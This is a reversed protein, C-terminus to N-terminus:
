VRLGSVIETPIAPEKPQYTAIIKLLHKRDGLTPIIERLDNDTLELFIVGDVRNEQLIEIASNSLQNTKKLYDSLEDCSFKELEEKTAM